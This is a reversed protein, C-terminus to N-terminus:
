KWLWRELKSSRGAWATRLGRLKFTMSFTKLLWSLRYDCDDVGGEWVCIVCLGYDQETEPHKKELNREKELHEEELHHEKEPALPPREV